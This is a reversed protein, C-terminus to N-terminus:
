DGSQAFLRQWLRGDMTSLGIGIVAMGLIQWAHLQEGLVVSGLLIATVPLLLNVLLTIHVDRRSM